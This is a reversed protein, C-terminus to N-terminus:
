FFERVLLIFVPEGARRRWREYAERTAQENVLNSAMHRDDASFNYVVINLLLECSSFPKFSVM